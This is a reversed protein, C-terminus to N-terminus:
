RGLDKEEISPHCAHRGCGEKWVILVVEADEPDPAPNSHGEAEVTQVHHSPVLILNSTSHGPSLYIASLGFLPVNGCDCLCDPCVSVILVM